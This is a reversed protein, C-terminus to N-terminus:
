FDNTILDSLADTLDGLKKKDVKRAAKVKISFFKETGDCCRCHFEITGKKHIVAHIEEIM